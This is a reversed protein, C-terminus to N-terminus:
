LTVQWVEPNDEMPRFGLRRLWHAAREIGQDCTAYVAPEGAEKLAQFVRNVARHLTFASIPARRDVFACACGWENWTVLGFGIIREGDKLCMGLWIEPPECHYFALFDADTAQVLM